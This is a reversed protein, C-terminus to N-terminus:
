SENGEEEFARLPRKLEEGACSHHAQEKLATSQAGEAPGSMAILNLVLQLIATVYPPHGETINAM